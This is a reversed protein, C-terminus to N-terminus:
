GLDPARGEERQPRHDAEPESECEATACRVPPRAGHEGRDDREEGEHESIRVAHGVQLMRSPLAEDVDRNDRRRVAEWAATTSQSESHSIVDSPSRPPTTASAM